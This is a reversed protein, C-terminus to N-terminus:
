GNAIERTQCMHEIMRKMFPLNVDPFDIRHGAMVQNTNTMDFTADTAQFLEMTGPVSSGRHEGLNALAMCAGSIAPDLNSNQVRQRFNKLSITELQPVSECLAKCFLESSAGTPHAIHWVPSRLDSGVILALIKAAFDVPTVDFRHGMPLRPVIGLKLCGRVALALLDKAPFVGSNMDATLLGLRFIRVKPLAALNNRVLVEAAWKSQAYGGFINKTLSLDDNERMTGRWRDTGVFVSLTSIFDFKKPAGEAVFQLAEWTGLVNVPRLLWYTKASNVEAACHIVHAVSEALSQWKKKEWGFMPRSIDGAIVEIRELQEESLSVRNREFADKLRQHAHQDDSGRVICVFNSAEEKLLRQLVRVGLFGTAGTILMNLETEKVSDPPSTRKETLVMNSIDARLASAKIAEASVKSDIEELINEISGCSALLHPSLDMGAMQALVAVEMARLSDGGVDFFSDHNSFESHKLVRTFIERLTLKRDTTAGGRRLELQDQELPIEDVVTDVNKLMKQLASFDPKGTSTLPMRETLAIQGPLYNQPLRLKLFNRLNGLLNESVPLQSPEVFAVMVARECERVLVVAAQRVEPHLLLASEIEEPEIRHGRIKIQRDVRGVFVYEGDSDKRVIDGSRYFTVGNKTVFKQVSIEDRNRYGRALQRGVILLEGQSPQAKSTDLIYKVGRLPQGILPRQWTSDCISLSTCVTAETPGYVCLLRVKSAWNRIALPSAVEGGILLTTLSPPCDDPNLTALFAPPIDIYTIQNRRVSQFLEAPTASLRGRTTLSSEIWISAGSLLATGIDSVAADFSTSLLFLSRSQPGLQLFQIQQRLMPVLGSHTVEVGKPQGTTGSTYIVYALQEPSFGPQPVPEPKSSAAQDIWQQDITLMAGSDRIQFDVRQQPLNCDIPVWAARCRWVGILAAVYFASRNLQLAVVSEPGVENERLAAAFHGSWKWLRNYSWADGDDSIALRDGQVEVMQQLLGVFDLSEASENLNPM